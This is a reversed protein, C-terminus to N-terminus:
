YKPRAMIASKIYGNLEEQPELIITQGTIIHLGESIIELDGDLLTLCEVTDSENKYYQIDDFKQTVYMREELPIRGYRKKSSKDQIHVSELAEKLQLPRLNGDKDKRNFDYFRYTIESNEEIEYVLSGASLAHLTGGTIYVYDGKEVALFDVVSEIRNEEIAKKFDTQSKCRCGNYIKGSSPADVFYWSENKGYPLCELKAAMMDDPHVQISLHEKAEVLAIVLSFESYKELHFKERNFSFYDAFSKGKWIGNLITNSKGNIQYASYLHGIKKCTSDTYPTLKDGGWITEHIEPKLIIM